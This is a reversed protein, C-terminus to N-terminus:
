DVSNIGNYVGQLCFVIIFFLTVIVGLAVLIKQTDLLDSDQEKLKEYLFLATTFTMAVANMAETSPTGFELDCVYPYIKSSWMFPRGDMFALKIFTDFFISTSLVTTFYFTTQRSACNFLIMLFLM